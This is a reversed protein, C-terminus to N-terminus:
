PTANIIDSLADELTDLQDDNLVHDIIHAQQASRTTHNTFLPDNTDATEMDSMEGLLALLKRASSMVDDVTNCANDVIMQHTLNMPTDIALCDFRGERRSKNLPAHAPVDEVDTHLTAALSKQVKELRNLVSDTECTLHHVNIVVHNDEPHDM